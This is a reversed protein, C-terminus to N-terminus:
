IFDIVERAYSRYTRLALARLEADSAEPRVARFNEILAETAPKLRHFALWTGVHGIAYSLQRPIHSVGWHTLAFIPGTDLVHRHWQWQVYEPQREVRMSHPESKM